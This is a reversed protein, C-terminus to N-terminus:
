LVAGERVESLVVMCFLLIFLCKLICMKAKLLSSFYIIVRKLIKSSKAQKNVSNLLSTGTGVSIPIPQLLTLPTCCPPTSFPEHPLPGNLWLDFITYFSM